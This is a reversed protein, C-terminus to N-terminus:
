RQKIMERMMRLTSKNNPLQFTTLISKKHHAIHSLSNPREGREKRRRSQKRRRWRPQDLSCKRRTTMLRPIRQVESGQFHSRTLLQWKNPKVVLCSNVNILRRQLPIRTALTSPSEIRRLLWIVSAKSRISRSLQRRKSPLSRKGPHVKWHAIRKYDKDRRKRLDAERKSERLIIEPIMLSQNKRLAISSHYMRDFKSSRISKSMDCKRQVQDKLHHYTISSFSRTKRRISMTTTSYCIVTMSSIWKSQIQCKKSKCISTKTRLILKGQTITNGKSFQPFKVVIRVWKQMKKIWPMQSTLLTWKRSRSEKITMHFMKMTRVRRRVTRKLINLLHTPQLSHTSIEMMAKKQSLKLLRNSSANERKLSLNEMQTGKQLVIKLLLKSNLKM